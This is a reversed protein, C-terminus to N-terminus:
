RNKVNKEQECGKELLLWNECGGMLMELGYIALPVQLQHSPDFGKPFKSIFTGIARVFCTALFKGDKTVQPL